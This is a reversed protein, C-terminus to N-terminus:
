RRQWTGSGANRLVRHRGKVDPHILNLASRERNGYVRAFAIWRGDPSWAPGGDCIGGAPHTVPPHTIVHENSGDATMVALHCNLGFAIRRGGPSWEPDGPATVGPTLNTPAGGAAPIVYINEIPNDDTGSSVVYAITTGDPSWAPAYGGPALQRLRSGDANM